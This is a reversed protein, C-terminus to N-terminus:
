IMFFDEGLASDWNALRPAIDKSFEEELQRTLYNVLAAPAVFSSQYSTNRMFCRLVVDYIGEDMALNFRHNAIVLVRARRKKAYRIMQYTARNYRPAWFAVLLDEPGIAELEEAYDLGENHVLRVGKRLMAWNIYAYTAMSRSIRMGVLYIRRATKLLTCAAELDERSLERVTSKM